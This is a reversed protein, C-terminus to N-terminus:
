DPKLEIAMASIDHQQLRNLERYLERTNDFPGVRVRYWRARNITVPEIGAQMGLLALQAKLRDADKEQKFSGAQLLYRKGTDVDTRRNAQEDDGFQLEAEPILVELEPLLTYFNFRTAPKDDQKSETAQQKAAPTKDKQKLKDIEVQVADGFSMKNEPQKDLYIIFAIFLGITLGILLWVFGPLPKRAPRHGHSKYDATMVSM